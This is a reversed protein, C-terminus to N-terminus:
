CVTTIGWNCNKVSTISTGTTCTTCSGLHPDCNCNESVSTVHGNNDVVPHKPNSLASYSHLDRLQREESATTIGTTTCLSIGMTKKNPLGYLSVGCNCYTEQQHGQQAPRTGHRTTSSLHGHNLDQLFAHLNRLRLDEPQPRRQVICRCTTEPCYLHWLNLEDGSDTSRETAVSVHVCLQLQAHNAQQRHHPTTRKLKAANKPRREDPRQPGPHRPRRSDSEWTNQWGLKTGGNAHTSFCM